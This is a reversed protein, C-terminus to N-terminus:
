RADEVEKCRKEYEAKMAFNLAKAKELESRLHANMEAINDCLGQTQKLEVKVQMEKRIPLFFEVQLRLTEADRAEREAAADVKLVVDAAKSKKKKRDLSLELQQRLKAMHFGTGPHTAIFAPLANLVRTEEPLQKSEKAIAAGWTM